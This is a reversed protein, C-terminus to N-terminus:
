KIEFDKAPFLNWKHLNGDMKALLTPLDYISPIRVGKWDGYLGMRDLHIAGLGAQNAGWVDVYFIDGIYITKSSDWDLSNLTIEFIRSDPKEVGVVFSDIVIEFYERLALDQMIQDVRGDSNSIVAMQYGGEKLKGISKGVWPQTTAWIHKAKDAQLTLEYAARAKKESDTVQKFIDLFYQIAPFQHHRAIHEDYARFLRAHQETIESTSTEIGVQNAIDALLDFDPFVLVGGADFILFPKKNM